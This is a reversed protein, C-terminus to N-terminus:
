WDHHLDGACQDLAHHAGAMSAPPATGVAQLARARNDGDEDDGEETWFQRKRFRVEPRSNKSLTLSPSSSWRLWRSLMVAIKSTIGNRSGNSILTSWGSMVMRM